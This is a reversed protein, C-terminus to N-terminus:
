HLDDIDWIKMKGQEDRQENGQESGQEDGRAGRSTTLNEKEKQLYYVDLAWWEPKAKWIGESTAPHGEVHADAKCPIPATWVALGCLTLPTGAQYQLSLCVDATIHM